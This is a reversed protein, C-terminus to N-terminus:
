VSVFHPSGSRVFYDATRASVVCVQTSVCARERARESIYVCVCMCVCVYMCKRECMCM